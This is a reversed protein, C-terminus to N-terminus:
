DGQLEEMLRQLRALDTMTGKVELLPQLEVTMLDLDLRDGQRAIVGRVDSWDRDRGAFVKHVVLDEATCTRLPATGPVEWDSARAVSREEYSLAGLAVDLPVGSRTRLLVVRARRAFAQPDSVRSAFAQLLRDVFADEGGFGTLLTLDVDRTVRPEGWRQVALGGIFCFRWGEDECLRQIEEAAAFLGNM